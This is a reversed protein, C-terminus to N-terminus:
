SGAADHSQQIENKLAFSFGLFFHHHNSRWRTAALLITFWNIKKFLQLYFDFYNLLSFFVLLNTVSLVEQSRGGVKGPKRKICLLFKGFLCGFPFFLFSVLLKPRLM